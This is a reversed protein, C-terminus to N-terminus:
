FEAIGVALIGLNDELSEKINGKNDLLYGRRNTTGWDIAILTSASTTM